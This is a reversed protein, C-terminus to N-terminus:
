PVNMLDDAYEYSIPNGPPTKQYAAESRTRESLQKSSLDKFFQYVAELTKWATVGLLDNIPNRMARVREGVYSGHIEDNIEINGDNSIGALLLEYQDPVPGVARHLYCAGSISVTHERFHIFDAYWLLKNLKSKTMGEPEKAAFFIIMEALVDFRFPMYGSYIDRNHKRTRSFAELLKGPMENVILSELRGALKQHASHSLRVGNLNFFKRLIFPDQLLLLLNNHTEDPMSGNEYRTITEEAWGLLLALNRQSLDYKERIVRIHDSALINYQQRYVAYIRELNESDLVKDFLSNGCKSCVLVNSEASIPL